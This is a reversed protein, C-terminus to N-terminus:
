AFEDAIDDRVLVERIDNVVELDPECRGQLIGADLALHQKWRNLKAVIGRDIEPLM